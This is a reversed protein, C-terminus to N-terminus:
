IRLTQKLYQRTQDSLGDIAALLDNGNDDSPEQCYRQHMERAHNNVGTPDLEAFEGRANLAKSRSLESM